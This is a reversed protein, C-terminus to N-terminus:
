SVTEFDKLLRQLEREILSFMMPWTSTHSTYTFSWANRFETSYLLPHCETVLRHTHEVFLSESVEPHIQRM